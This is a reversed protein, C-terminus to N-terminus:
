REGDHKDVRIFRDLRVLLIHYDVIHSVAINDLAFNPKGQVDSIFTLPQV